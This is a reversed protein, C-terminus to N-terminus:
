QPTDLQFLGVNTGGTTGGVPLSWQPEWVITAGAQGSQDGRQEGAPEM